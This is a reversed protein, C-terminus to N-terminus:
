RNSSKEGEVYHKIGIYREPERIYLRVVTRSDPYIKKHTTLGIRIQEFCKTDELKGFGSGFLPLCIISLCLDEAKQLIDSVIGAIVHEEERARSGIISGVSNSIAIYRWRENGNLVRVQGLPFRFTYKLAEIQLRMGVLQRVKRQLGDSMILTPNVPCGLLDGSGNLIDDQIIELDSSVLFRAGRKLIAPDHFRGPIQSEDSPMSPKLANAVFECLRDLEGPGHQFAQTQRLSFPLTSFDIGEVYSFVRGQPKVGSLIDNFFSDWEYRVWKSEINDVSTAVVVIVKAAELARDIHQKYASVGHRELTVESYFVSIDLSSLINYIDRAIVSDRTLTGFGDLKKFSVFVDYERTRSAM